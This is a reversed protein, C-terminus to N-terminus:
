TGMLLATIKWGLPTGEASIVKYRRGQDDYAVDDNLLDVGALMPLRIDMRPIEVDGPLDAPGRVGRAGVGVYAPWGTLLPTEAAEVDGSYGPQLGLGAPAVPRKFTLVRNCIIGMIPLMPDQSIIALTGLPGGTLYDGAQTQTGDLYLFREPKEWMAAADFNNYKASAAVLLAANLPTGSTPNTPGSPRYQAYPFGIQAAALGFGQWILSEITSATM